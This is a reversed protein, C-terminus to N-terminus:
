QEVSFLCVLKPRELGSSIGKGEEGCFDMEKLM